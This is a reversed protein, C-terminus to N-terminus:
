AGEVLVRFGYDSYRFAPPLSSSASPPSWRVAHRWSGGRSARRAAHPPPALPERWNLCWEHVMTGMDYLGYGNPTGRGTEWPSDLPGEPIEGPPVAAGWATAPSTLGGCAAHEWEAETPLRWTGGVSEAVWACFAMADEWSVGVVPLAAASFRADRWWPPEPVRGLALFPAYDRNTVPTRGLRFPVAAPIPVTEPAIV